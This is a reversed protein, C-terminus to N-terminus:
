HWRWNTWRGSLRRASLRQQKEWHSLSVTWDSSSCSLIVLWLYVSLYICNQINQLRSLYGLTIGHTRYFLHYFFEEPLKKPSWILLFDTCFSFWYMFSYHWREAPHSNPGRRQWPQPAGAHRRGKAPCAWLRCRGISQLLVTERGAAAAATWNRRSCCRASPTQKIQSAAFFCTLVSVWFWLHSFNLRHFHWFVFVFCLVTLFAAEEFFFQNGHYIKFRFM